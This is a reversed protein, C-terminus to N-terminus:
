PSPIGGGWTLKQIVQDTTHAASRKIIYWSNQTVQVNVEKIKHMQECESIM